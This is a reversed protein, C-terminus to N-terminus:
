IDMIVFDGDGLALHYGGSDWPFSLGLDFIAGDTIFLEIFSDHRYYGTSV